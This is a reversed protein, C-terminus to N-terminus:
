KTLEYWDNEIRTYAKSIAAKIAEENTTKVGKLEEDLYTHLKRM